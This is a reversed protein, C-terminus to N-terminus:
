WIIDGKGDMSDVSDVAMSGAYRVEAALIADANSEDLRPRCM